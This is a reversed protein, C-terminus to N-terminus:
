RRSIPDIGQSILYDDKEKPTLNAQLTGAAIADNIMGVADPWAIKRLFGQRKPAGAPGGYRKEAAAARAAKEAISKVTRSYWTQWVHKWSAWRKGTALHFNRFDEAETTWDHTAGPVAAQLRAEALARWDDPLTWPEALAVAASSLRDKPATGAKLAAAPKAACALPKPKRPALRALDHESPGHRRGAKADDVLKAAEADANRKLEADTWQTQSIWDREQQPTPEFSAPDEVRGSQEVTGLDVQRIGTIEIMDRRAKEEIAAFESMGAPQPLPRIEVFDPKLSPAYPPVIPPTFPPQTEEKEGVTETKGVTAGGESSLRSDGLIASPNDLSGFIPSTVLPYTVLDARRLTHITENASLCFEASFQADATAAYSPNTHLSTVMEATTETYLDADGEVADNQAFMTSQVIHQTMRAPWQVRYHSTLFAGTLTKRQVVDLWDANKLIRIQRIVAQRSVGVMKAINGVSVPNDSQSLILITGLVRIAAAGVWPDTFIERPMQLTSM